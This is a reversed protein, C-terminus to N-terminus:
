NLENLLDNALSYRGFWYTYQTGTKMMKKAAELEYKIRDYIKVNAGDGRSHLNSM